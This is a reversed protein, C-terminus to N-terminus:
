SVGPREVAELRRTIEENMIWCDDLPHDYRCLLAGDLQERARTLRAIEADLQELQARAIGKWTENDGSYLVTHIADLPLGSDQLMQVFVLRRVAVEGYRRQGGVRRDAHILGRREYYRLASTALGVMDAVEGITYEREDHRM